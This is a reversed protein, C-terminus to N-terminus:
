KNDSDRSASRSYNGKVREHILLKHVYTKLGPVITCSKVMHIDIKWSQLM